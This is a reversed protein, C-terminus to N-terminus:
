KKISFVNEIKWIYLLQDEERITCLSTFYSNIGLQIHLVRNHHRWDM